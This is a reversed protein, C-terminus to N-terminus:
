LNIWREYNRSPAYGFPVNERRKVYASIVRRKEDWTLDHWGIRTNGRWYLWRWRFGVCSCSCTWVVCLNNRNYITGSSVVLRRKHKIATTNDCTAFNPMLLKGPYIMVPLYNRGLRVFEQYSTLQVTRM